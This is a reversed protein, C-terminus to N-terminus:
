PNREFCKQGDPLDVWCLRTTTWVSVAPAFATPDDLTGLKIITTGKSEALDSFIPSGCTGCFRRYVPNGSYTDRDVWTTLEGSTEVESQRVVLNVSFASGSQRQCNRCHCQATVLPKGALMYRVAGCNCGGEIM